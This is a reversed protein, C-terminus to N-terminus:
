SNGQGSSRAKRIAHFDGRKEVHRVRGVNSVIGTFM